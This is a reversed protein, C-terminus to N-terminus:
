ALVQRIAQERGIKAALRQARFYQRASMEPYTERRPPWGQRQRLGVLQGRTLGHRTLIEDFPVNGTWDAKIAAILEPSRRVYPAGKHAKVGAARRHAVRREARLQGVRDLLARIEANLEDVTRAM